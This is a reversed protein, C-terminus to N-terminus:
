LNILTQFSTGVSNKAIVALVIDEIFTELINKKEQFDLFKDNEIKKEQLNCNYSICIYFYIKVLYEAIDDDCSRDYKKLDSITHCNSPTILYINSCFRCLYFYLIRLYRHFNLSKSSFHDKYLSVGILKVKFILITLVFKQM